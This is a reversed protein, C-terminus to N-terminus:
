IFSCILLYLFKCLVSYVMSISFMAYTLADGGVAKCHFPKGNHYRTLTVSTKFTLTRQPQDTIPIVRSGDRLRLSIEPLPYADMTCTFEVTTHEQVPSTPLTDATIM